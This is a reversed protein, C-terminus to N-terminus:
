FSIYLSKIGSFVLHHSHLHKLSQTFKELQKFERQMRVSSFSPEDHECPNDLVKQVLHNKSLCSLLARTVRSDKFSRNSERMISLLRPDLGQNKPLDFTLAAIQDDSFSDFEFCQTLSKDLLFLIPDVWDVEDILRDFNWLITKGPCFDACISLAELSLLSKRSRKAWKLPREVEGEKIAEGYLSCCYKPFSRVLALIHCDVSHKKCCLLFVRLADPNRYFLECSLVSPLANDKIKNIREDLNGFDFDSNLESNSYSKLAIQASTFYDYYGNNHDAGTLYDFPLGFEFSLNLYAHLSRSGTQESGIHLLLKGM